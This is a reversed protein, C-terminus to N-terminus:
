WSPTTAAREWCAIEFDNGVLIDDNANSVLKAAEAVSNINAKEVLVDAAKALMYDGVNSRLM